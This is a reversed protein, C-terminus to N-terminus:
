VPRVVLQSGRVAVIHFKGPQLESPSTEDAVATWLAGRYKVQASGDPLWKQIQVTGGIDMNMDQNAASPLASPKPRIKQLVVVATGGGVAAVLLQGALDLGLHSAVAGAASGLALMLLYLTGTVLEVGVLAATLVWWVTADSM